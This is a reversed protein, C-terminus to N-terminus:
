KGKKTGKEAENKAEARKKRSAVIWACNNSCYHKEKKTARLFFKGCDNRECRRIDDLLFPELARFFATLLQDKRSAPILFARGEVRKVQQGMQFSELPRDIHRAKEEDLIIDLMWRLHKQYGKIEQRMDESDAGPFKPIYPSWWEGMDLLLVLFDRRPLSNIDVNLFELFWKLRAKTHPTVEERM